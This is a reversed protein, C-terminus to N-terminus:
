SLKVVKTEKETSAKVILIGDSTDPAVIEMRTDGGSSTVLLVGSVNYIAIGTVPEESIISIIDGTRYIQIKESTDAIQEIGTAVGDIIFNKWVPAAKWLDVFEKEVILHVSATDVGSFAEEDASPIVSKLQLVDVSQLSLTNRFAHPEIRVVDDALKLGIVETGAYAGEKIVPGHLILEKGDLSTNTAVLAPSTVFYYNSIDLSTDNFFVGEGLTCGTAFTLEELGPCMAFAYDEIEKVGPLYISKIASEYFAKVGVRNLSSPFLAQTLQGTDSFCRAPIETLDSQSFDVRELAHCGYFAAEGVHKVKKGDFKKLATQAFVGPGIITTCDPINVEEVATGMLMYAPLEGDQWSTVGCYAGEIFEDGKIDLQSLDLTKINEPLNKLAILDSAFAEGKITFLSEQQQYLISLREPLEGPRVTIEMAGVSSVIGALLM